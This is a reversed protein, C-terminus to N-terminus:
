QLTAINHNKEKIKDRKIRGQSETSLGGEGGEGGGGWESLPEFHIIVDNNGYHAMKSKDYRCFFTM